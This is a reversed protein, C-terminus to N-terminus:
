HGWAACNGWGRAHAWPSTAALLRGTAAHAGLLKTNFVDVAYVVLEARDAALAARVDYGGVLEHIREPDLRINV